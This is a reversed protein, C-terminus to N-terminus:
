FFIWLTTCSNVNDLEPVNIDDEFSVVYKHAMVGWNGEQGRVVVLSETVIYKGLRFM